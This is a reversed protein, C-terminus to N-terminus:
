IRKFYPNNIRENELTTELGHGPYVLTKPPYSSRLLKLSKMMDEYNGDEFDTRGITGRFLTDGTFLVGQIEFCVSGATHGPTKIINIRHDDIILYSRDLVVDATTPEISMGFRKGLHKDTLLKEADNSHLAIKIRDNEFKNIDHIHDIHGHTLLVMQITKGLDKALRTAKEYSGPVCDILIAADGDWYVFYSCVNDFPPYTLKIVNM